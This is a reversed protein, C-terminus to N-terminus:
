KFNNKYGNIIDLYYKNLSFPACKLLEIQLEILNLKIQNKDNNSKLDKIFNDIDIGIELDIIQPNYEPINVSSFYDFFKINDGYLEFNKIKYWISKIGYAHSVILGHLSTSITYDCSNINDIIKEINSDDLKIILIDDSKILNKILDYHIYHPIIGLRYKKKITPNYILPLLLGPDGLKVNYNVGIEILKKKTYEGRVALYKKALTINDNNDIIGSGWVICRKSSYWQLISGATIIYESTFISIIFYKFLLLSGKGRYIDSLFKRVVNIRNSAYHIYHVDSGTLHHVIYPGLDDGFNFINPNESRAWKMKVSRIKNM